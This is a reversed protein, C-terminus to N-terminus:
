VVTVKLTKPKPLVAIEPFCFGDSLIVNEAPHLPDLFFTRTKIIELSFEYIELTM